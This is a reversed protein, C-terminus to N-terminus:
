AGLAKALSIDAHVMRLPLAAILRSWDPNQEDFGYITGRYEIDGDSLTALRYRVLDLLLAQAPAAAILRANAEGRQENEGNIRLDAIVSAQEGAVIEIGDYGPWKLWFNWPGPTHAFTNTM